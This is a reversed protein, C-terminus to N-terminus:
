VLVSTYYLRQAAGYSVLPWGVAMYAEEALVAATAYAKKHQMYEYDVVVSPDLVPGALLRVRNSIYDNTFSVQNSPNLPETAVYLRSGPFEGGDPEISYVWGDNQQNFVGLLYTQMLEEVSRHTYREGLGTTPLLPFPEGLLGEIGISGDGYPLVKFVTQEEVTELLRTIAPPWVNLGDSAGYHPLMFTPQGGPGASEPVWGVPLGAQEVARAEAIDDFEPAMPGLLGNTTYGVHAVVANEIYYDLVPYAQIAPVGGPTISWNRTLHGNTDRVVLWVKKGLSQAKLRAQIRGLRETSAPLAQVVQFTSGVDASFPAQRVIRARAVIYNDGPLTDNGGLDPFSGGPLNGLLLGPPFTTLAGSRRVIESGAFLPLYGDKFSM